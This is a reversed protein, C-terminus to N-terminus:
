KKFICMYRDYLDHPLIGEFVPKIVHNMRKFDILSSSCRVHQDCDFFNNGQIVILSDYPIRDFWLDYTEQNVHETSTNIVINPYHEYDYTYNKMDETVHNINSINNCLIYCVEKCWPDIDINTIHSVKFKSSSHIISALVGIWGGFIYINSDESVLENLTNTLWCKSDLQGAWFAELARTREQDPLNRVANFWNIIYKTNIKSSDNMM